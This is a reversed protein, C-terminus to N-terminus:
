FTNDSSPGVGQSVWKKDKSDNKREDLPFSRLENAHQSREIVAAQTPSPFNPAHLKEAPLVLGRGPLEEEAASSPDAAAIRLGLKADQGVLVSARAAPHCGGM